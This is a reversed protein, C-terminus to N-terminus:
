QRWSRPLLNRRRVFVLVERGEKPAGVEVYWCGGVGFSTGSVGDCWVLSILYLKDSGNPFFFSPYMFFFTSCEFNGSQQYSLEKQGGAVVLMIGM